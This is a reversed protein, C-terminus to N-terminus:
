PSPTPLKPEGDLDPEGPRDAENTPDLLHAPMYSVGGGGWNVGYFTGVHVSAVHGKQGATVKPHDTKAKVKAGPKHM